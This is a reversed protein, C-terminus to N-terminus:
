YHGSRDQREEWYQVVVEVKCVGPCTGERKAGDSNSRAVSCVVKARRGEIWPPMYLPGDGPRSWDGAWFTIDTLPTGIKNQGLFNFGPLLTLEM